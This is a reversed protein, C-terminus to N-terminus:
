GRRDEPVSGIIEQLQDNFANLHTLAQRLAESDTKSSLAAIASAERKRMDKFLRRGDATIEILVSRKHAPNAVTRALGRELLEDVSKQVHQRSVAKGEAIQPVTQSGHESLWELIARLSLPVGNDAHLSEGIKRLRQFALRIQQIYRNLEAPSTEM